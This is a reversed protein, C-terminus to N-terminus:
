ELPGVLQRVFNLLADLEEVEEAHASRSNKGPEACSSFQMASRHSCEDWPMKLRKDALNATLEHKHAAKDWVAPYPQEVLAPPAM